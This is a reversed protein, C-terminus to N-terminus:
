LENEVVTNDKQEQMSRKISEREEVAKSWVDCYSEDKDVFVADGSITIMNYLASSGGRNSSQTARGGEQITVKYALLANGGLAKVQARAM